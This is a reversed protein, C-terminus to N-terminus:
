PDIGEPLCLVRGKYLQLNDCAFMNLKEFLAPSNLYYKQIVDTCWALRRIAYAEFPCTVAAVESEIEATAMAALAEYNRYVLAPILRLQSDELGDSEAEEAAADREQQRIQQDQHQQQLDNWRRSGEEREEVEEGRTKATRENEEGETRREDQGQQESGKGHVQPESGKGQAEGQLHGQPQSGEEPQKWGYRRHVAQRLLQQATQSSVTSESGRGELLRASTSSLFCFLVWLMALTRAPAGARSNRRLEM